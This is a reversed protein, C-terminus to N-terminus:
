LSSILSTKFFPVFFIWRNEIIRIDKRLFEAVINMHAPM